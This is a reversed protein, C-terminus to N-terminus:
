VPFAFPSLDLNGRYSRIRAVHPLSSRRATLEKQRIGDVM